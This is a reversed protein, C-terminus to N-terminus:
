LLADSSQELFEQMLERRSVPPGPESDLMSETGPMSPEIEYDNLPTQQKRALREFPWSSHQNTRKLHTGAQLIRRSEAYTSDTNGLPDFAIIMESPSRNRLETHAVGPSDDPLDPVTETSFNDASDHSISNRVGQQIQVVDNDANTNPAARSMLVFMVLAGVGAGCAWSGAIVFAHLSKRDAPLEVVAVTADDDALQQLSALELRPPQPRTARLRRELEDLRELVEPSESELMANTLHKRKQNM